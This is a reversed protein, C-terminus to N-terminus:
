SRERNENNRDSHKPRDQRENREAREPEDTQEPKPLLVKRSLKLNGTKSDVDILKVEVIEGVKLVDEVNQVRRWEIESIHLL